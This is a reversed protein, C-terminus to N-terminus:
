AACPLFHESLLIGAAYPPFLKVRSIQSLFFVLFFKQFYPAMLAMPALSTNQTRFFFGAALFAILAALFFGHPLPLEVSFLFSLGALLL